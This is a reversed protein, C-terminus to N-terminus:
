CWLTLRLVGRHCRASLLIYATPIRAIPLAAERDCSPLSPIGRRPQGEQEFSALSLVAMPARHRESLVVPRGSCPQPTSREYACWRRTWVATPLSVSVLV